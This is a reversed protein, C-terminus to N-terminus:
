KSFSHGRRDCPASHGRALVNCTVWAFGHSREQPLPVRACRRPHLPARTAIGGGLRVTRSGDDCAPHGQDTVAAAAVGDPDFAPDVAVDPRVPGDDNRLVTHHHAVDQGPVGDNGPPDTAPHLGSRTDFQLRGADHVALDVGQADGDLLAGQDVHRELCRGLVGPALSSVRREDSSVRRERVAVQRSAENFSVGLSPVLSACYWNM